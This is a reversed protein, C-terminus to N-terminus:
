RQYCFSMAAEIQGTSTYYGKEGFEHIKQVCTANGDSGLSTTGGYYSYLLPGVIGLAIVVAFILCTVGIINHFEHTESAIKKPKSIEKLNTSKYTSTLNITSM